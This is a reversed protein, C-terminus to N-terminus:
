NTLLYKVREKGKGSKLLNDAGLGLSTPRPREAVEGVILVYWKEALIYLIFKDEGM